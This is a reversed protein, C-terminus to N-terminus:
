RSCYPCQTIDITWLLGPLETQIGTRNERLGRKPDKVRKHAIQSAEECITCKEGLIETKYKQINSRLTEVSLISNKSYLDRKFSASTDYM